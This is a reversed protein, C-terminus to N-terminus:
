NRGSNPLALGEPDHERCEDMNGSETQEDTVAAAWLVPDAGASEDEWSPNLVVTRYFKNHEKLYSLAKNVNAPSIHQTFVSHADSLRRKLALTIIQSEATQRPLCQTVKSLDSPVLVVQGHIGKQAGRPLAVIKM